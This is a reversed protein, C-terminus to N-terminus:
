NARRFNAYKFSRALNWENTPIVSWPGITSYIGVTKGAAGPPSNRAALARIRRSEAGQFHQGRQGRPPVSRGNSM